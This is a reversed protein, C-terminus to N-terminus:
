LTVLSLCVCPDGEFLANPFPATLTVFVLECEELGATMIRCCSICWSNVASITMALVRDTRRRVIKYERVNTRATMPEFVERRERSWKDLQELKIIIQSSTSLLQFAYSHCNWRFY